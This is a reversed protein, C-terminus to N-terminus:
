LPTSLILPSRRAVAQISLALSRTDAPLSRHLHEVLRNQIQAPDRAHARLALASLALALTSSQEVLMRQLAGFGEEVASTGSRSGQLALLALATTDPYPWLNEDLVRVNGYNWGGGRCARDLIMREGEHIREDVRSRQDPPILTRLRRLAIMAYTTPEVWSFTKETWPWGQLAPDLEFPDYDPFLRLFLRTYWPYLRGERELIWEAARRSVKRDSGFLALVALPTAWSEHSIRDTHPWSGNEKQRQILWTRAPEHARDGPVLTMLALSSSELDSPLGPAAGWGGDGGQLGILQADLKKLINM